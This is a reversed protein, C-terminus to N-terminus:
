CGLCAEAPKNIMLDDFHLWNDMTAANQGSLMHSAMFAKIDKESRQAIAVAKARDGPIGDHTLLWAQIYRVQSITALASARDDVSGKSVCPQAQTIVAQYRQVARQAAAGRLTHVDVKPALVKDQTAWAAKLEPCAARAINPVAFLALTAFVVLVRSRMTM